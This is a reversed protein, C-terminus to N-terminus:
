PWPDDESIIPIGRNHLLATTVGCGSEKRGEIEVRRLGCSPSGEKLLILAPSTLEVIRLTEEAGRVFFATRDIGSADIIQAKGAVVARGDGGRFRCRARPIGLGGLLEPCVPILVAQKVLDELRLHACSIGDYRSRIGALCASIM